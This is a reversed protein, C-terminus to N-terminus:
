LETIISIESFVCRILEERVRSITLVTHEVNINYIIAVITDILPKDRFSNKQQMNKAGGFTHHFM